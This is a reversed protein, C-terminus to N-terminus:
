INHRRRLVKIEQVYKTKLVIESKTDAVKSFYKLGGMMRTESPWPKKTSIAKAIHEDSVGPSVWDYLERVEEAPNSILTEYRITKVREIKELWKCVRPVSRFYNKICHAVNREFTKVQSNIANVPKRIIHMIWSDPFFKRFKQVYAKAMDFNVYPLKQGVLISADDWTFREIAQEVTKSTLLWSGKEHILKAPLHPHM